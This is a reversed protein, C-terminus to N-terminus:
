RSRLVCSFDLDTGLLTLLGCLWKSSLLCVMCGCSGLIPWGGGVVGVTCLCGDGLEFSFLCFDTGTSM